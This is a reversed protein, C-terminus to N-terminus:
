KASLFSFNYNVGFNIFPSSLNGSRAKIYGVAGQLNINNNLIYNFGVSPKIILGQGTSVGSGGASGGLVQTFISFNSNIFQNSQVGFGVNGEAYAGANGFNAFSTQGVEYIYNNLFFNIQFLITNINKSVGSVKNANLYLEQKLVIEIGKFKATTYNKDKSSIGDKDVYYKLGGGFTSSLYHSDPSRIFGKNVFIYYNDFLKQELSISPYILFGGKTDVNSGGGAGAGFNALINTRNKNMSLHYGAGLFINMYGAIIGYYSGGAKVFIFWNKNLFSNLELGVLRITKGKISIKDKFQSNGEVSLNNLRVILSLRHTPQDWNTNKLNNITFIKEREEFSVYDFPLSSQIAVNVQHSKINGKDFYNIYSWGSSVSFKTFQHGINFHPLIFAGGGVLASAGGGGGFHIGSDVFLNNTVFKKIGANVGLTFFGGRTGSVAGFMGIGAYSWDNLMLNYHIGTFGMNKEPINLKVNPMKISLFDLQYFDIQTKKKPIEQSEQSFTVQFSIISIFIALYIKYRNLQEKHTNEGLLDTDGVDKAEIYGIPIKKKTIIYDPAGCAIRLPENTVVM